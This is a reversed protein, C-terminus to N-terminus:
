ININLSHISQRQGLDYEMQADIITEFAKYQDKFLFYDKSETYEVVDAYGHGMIIMNAIHAKIVRDKDPNIFNILNM